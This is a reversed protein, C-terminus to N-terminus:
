KLSNAAEVELGGFAGGGAAAAEGLANLALAGPLALAADDGAGGGAVRLLPGPLAVRMVLTARAADRRLELFTPLDARAYHAEAAALHAAAAAPEAPAARMRRALVRARCLALPPALAVLDTLAARVAAWAGPAGGVPDRGGDHTGDGRGLFLGEVVVARVGAGVREAGLAPDHTGARDYRPLALAGCPLLECWHPRAELPPGGGGPPPPPQPADAGAAAAAAALAGGRLALLALDAAMAGGNITEICGKRPKLGRAGLWANTQHYADMSLTSTPPFGPLAAGLAVLAAALTTKGSGAPGSVGLLYRRGEPAAAAGERLWWLLPLYVHVLDGGDVAVCEELGCLTLPLNLPCGFAARLAAVDEEASTRERPSLPAGGRWRTSFARWLPGCFTGGAAAAAAAAREQLLPALGLLMQQAAYVGGHRMDFWQNVAITPEGAGAGVGVQHLWLAPLYLVEGRRLTLRLPSAHVSLPFRVADPADPDAEIWPVSTADSPRLAWCGRTRDGGCAGDDHAWRAVPFERKYLFAADMPPLLTFTKEGRLVCMLNEYHDCHTSSVPSPRGPAPAPAVWLNVADPPVGLAESACRVAGVDGTLQPFERRLSDNQASLYPVGCSPSAGELRDLAVSLPLTEEAPLAFLAGGEVADARGTPTTVLTCMASGAVARLHAVTWRLSPWSAIANILVCPKSPGVFDRLFELPTLLSADVRPVPSCLHDRQADVGSQLHEM